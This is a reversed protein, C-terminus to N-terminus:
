FMRLVWFINGHAGSPFRVRLVYILLIRIDCVFWYVNHGERQWRLGPLEITVSADWLDGSILPNRTRNGDPAWFCKRLKRYLKLLLCNEKLKGLQLDDEYIYIYIYLSFFSSSHVTAFYPAHIPDYNSVLNISIIDAFVRWIAAFVLPVVLVSNKTKNLINVVLNWVRDLCSYYYILNCAHCLPLNNNNNNNHKKFLFEYQEPLSKLNNDVEEIQWNQTGHNCLVGPSSQFWSLSHVFELFKHWTQSWNLKRTPSGFIERWIFISSM